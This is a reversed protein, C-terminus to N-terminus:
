DVQLRDAFALAELQAMRGPEARVVDLWGLWEAEGSDTWLSADRAWLRRMVNERHFRELTERVAADLEAPLRFSQLTRSSEM